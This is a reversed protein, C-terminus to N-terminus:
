ACADCSTWGRESSAGFISGTNPHFILAWWNSRQNLPDELGIIIHEVYRRPYSLEETEELKM